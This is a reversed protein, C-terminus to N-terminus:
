FSFCFRVICKVNVCRVRACVEEKERDFVIAFRTSADIISILWDIVFVILHLIYVGVLHKIQVNSDFVCGAVFILILSLFFFLFAFWWFVATHASGIFSLSPSLSLFLTAYILPISLHLSVWSRDIRCESATHGLQFIFSAINLVSHWTSFYNNTQRLDYLRVMKFWNTQFGVCVWVCFRVCQMHKNNYKCTKIPKSCCCCFCCVASYFLDCTRAVLQARACIRCTLLVCLGACKRHNTM